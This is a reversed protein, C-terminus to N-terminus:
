YFEACFGNSRPSHQGPFNKNVGEVESAIVPRSMISMYDQILNSLNYMWEDMKKPKGTKYFESKKNFKKWASYESWLERKRVGGLYKEGWQKGLEMNKRERRLFWALLGFLVMCVLM